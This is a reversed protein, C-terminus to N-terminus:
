PFDRTAENPINGRDDFLQGAGGIYAEPQPM